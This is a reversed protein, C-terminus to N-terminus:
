LSIRAGLLANGVRIWTAGHALADRYDASTGMSLEGGETPLLGIRQMADRLHALEAFYDHEAWTERPPPLAMLGRLSIATDRQLTELFSPLDIPDLGSKSHEGGLRVQVLCAADSLRQAVRLRDVSHVRAWGSELHRTKNSQITGIFHWIAEPMQATLENQCALAEQVYSHAFHRQGLRYAALIRESSQKKIVAILQAGTGECASTLQDFAPAMQSAASEISM